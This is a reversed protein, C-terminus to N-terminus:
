ETVQHMPLLPLLLLLPSSLLHSLPSSPFLTTATCETPATAAAHEPLFLVTVLPDAPSSFLVVVRAAAAAVAYSCRCYFVSSCIQLLTTLAFMSGCSTHLQLKLTDFAAAAAAACATIACELGKRTLTM